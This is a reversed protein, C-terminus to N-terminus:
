NNCSEVEAAVNIITSIGMKKLLFNSFTDCHAGLYLGPIIESAEFIYGNIDRHVKAPVSSLQQEQPQQVQHQQQESVSQEQPPMEPVTDQKKESPLYLKESIPPVSRRRLSFM